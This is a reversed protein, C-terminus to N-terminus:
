EFYYNIRLSSYSLDPNELDNMTNESIIKFVYYTSANSHAEITSIVAAATAKLHAIDPEGTNLNPAYCNAIATGPQVTSENTDENPNNQITLPVLVVDRLKSNQPRANKYVRGNITGTVTSVNVVPYLIDLVDHSTKM